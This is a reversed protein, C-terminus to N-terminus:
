VPGHLHSPDRTSRPERLPASPTALNTIFLRTPFSLFPLFALRAHKKKKKSTLTQFLLQYLILINVTENVGFQWSLCAAWASCTLWM